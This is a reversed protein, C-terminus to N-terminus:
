INASYHKTIIENRPNIPFPSAVQFIINGKINLENIVSTFINTIDQNIEDSLPKNTRLILNFIKNNSDINNLAINRIMGDIQIAGLNTMEAEFIFRSDKIEIGDENEHIYDKIFLQAHEINAGNWLPIAIANWNNSPTNFTQHLLSFEDHLSNLLPLSKQSTLIQTLEDNILLNTNGNKVASIFGFLTAIPNSTNPLHNLWPSKPNNNAIINSVQEINAWKSLLNELEIEAIINAKTIFFRQIEILINVDSPINFPTVVKFVGLDNKMILGDHEHGIIKTLMPNTLQEDKGILETIIFDFNGQKKLQTQAENLSDKNIKKDGLLQSMLNELDEENNNQILKAFFDDNLDLLIAKIPINLLEHINYSVSINSNKANLIQSFNDPNIPQNNIKLLGIEPTNNQKIVVFELKDGEKLNVSTQLTFNGQPTKLNVDGASTKGTVVAQILTGLPIQGLKQNDTSVLNGFPIIPKVPSVPQVNKPLNSINNSYEM